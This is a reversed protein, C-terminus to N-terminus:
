KRSFLAFLVVGIVLMVLLVWFIQGFMGHGFGAGWSWETTGHM